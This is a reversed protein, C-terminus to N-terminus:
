GGLFDMDHYVSPPVHYGDQGQSQSSFAAELAALDNEDVGVPVTVARGVQLEHSSRVYGVDVEELLRLPSAKFSFEDVTDLHELLLLQEPPAARSWLALAWGRIMGAMAVAVPNVATVLQLYIPVAEFPLTEFWSNARRPVLPLMGIGFEARLAYWKAAYELTTSFKRSLGKNFSRPKGQLDPYCAWFMQDTAETRARIDFLEQPRYKRMDRPQVSLPSLAELTSLYVDYLHALDARYLVELVGRHVATKQAAHYAQSFQDLAPHRRKDYLATVQGVGSTRAAYEERWYRCAQRFSELTQRKGLALCHEVM